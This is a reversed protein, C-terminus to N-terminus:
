NFLILNAAAQANYPKIAQRVFKNNMASKRLKELLRMARDVRLVPNLIQGRLCRIILSDMYQSATMKTKSHSRGKVAEKAAKKHTLIQFVSARPFKGIFTIGTLKQFRKDTWHIGRHETIGGSTVNGSCTSMSSLVNALTTGLMPVKYLANCRMDAFALSNM